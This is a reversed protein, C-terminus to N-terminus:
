RALAQVHGPDPQQLRDLRATIDAVVAGTGPSPPPQALRDLHEGLLREHTARTSTPARDLTREGLPRVEAYVSLTEGPVTWEAFRAQVIRELTRGFRSNAGSVAGLGLSRALEDVELVAPAHQRWADPLRRLLLVASPGLAPAWCQEVYPHDLPFGARAVVPDPHNRAAIELHSSLQLRAMAPCPGGGPSIAGRVPTPISVPVRIPIPVGSRSSFDRKPFAVPFALPFAM